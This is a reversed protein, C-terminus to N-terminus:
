ARWMAEEFDELSMPALTGIPQEKFYDDVGGSM